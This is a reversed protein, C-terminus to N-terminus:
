KEESRNKKNSPTRASSETCLQSNKKLNVVTIFLLCALLWDHVISKGKKEFLPTINVNFYKRLMMVVSTMTASSTIIIIMLTSVHLLHAFTKPVKKMEKVNVYVAM